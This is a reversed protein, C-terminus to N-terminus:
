SPKGYERAKQPWLCPTELVASRLQALEEASNVVSSLDLKQLDGGPAILVAECGSSLLLRDQFDISVCTGKHEFTYCSRMFPYTAM